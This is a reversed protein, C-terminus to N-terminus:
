IRAVSIVDVRLHDITWDELCGRLQRANTEDLAPVLDAEFVGDGRTITPEAVDSSVELRCTLLVAEVMEELAQGREGGETKAELVVRTRSGEPVPQHTSLTAERLALVAAIGVLLGLTGLV